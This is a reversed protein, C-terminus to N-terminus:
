KDNGNRTSKYILYGGFYLLFLAFLAMLVFLQHKIDSQESFAERKLICANSLIVGSLLYCSIGGWKYFGIDRIGFIVTGLFSNIAMTITKM